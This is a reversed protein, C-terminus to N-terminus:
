VPEHAPIDAIRAAAAAPVAAMLRTLDIEISSDPRGSGCHVRGLGGVTEDFVVLADRDGSVPCVGGSRMGARALRDAGAPALDTRRIGAARAPAGYRLRAHGPLAAPVLRDDPTVFALTKVTRRLPVGLAACIEVADVVDPHEHLRFPAGLAALVDLPGTSAPENM